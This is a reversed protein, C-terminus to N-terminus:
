IITNLTENLFKALPPSNPLYLVNPPLTFITQYKGVHRYMLLPRPLWGGLHFGPILKINLKICYSKISLLKSFLMWKCPPLYPHEPAWNLVLIAWTLVVNEFCYVCLLWNTLLIAQCFEFHEGVQLLKNAARNVQQIFWLCRLQSIVASYM